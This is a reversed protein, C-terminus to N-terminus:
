DKGGVVRPKFLASGGEAIVSAAADKLREIKGSLDPLHRRLLTDAETPTAHGDAAISAWESFLSGFATGLEAMEAALGAGINAPEADGLRLGRGGLWAATWVTLGTEGELAEVADFPMIEPLDIKSWRGVTSKGYSSIEAAREIGGAAAILDRQAAKLRFHKANANPVM